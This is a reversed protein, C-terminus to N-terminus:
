DTTGASNIPFFFFCFKRTRNSQLAKETTYQGYICLDKILEKNYKKKGRSIYVRKM